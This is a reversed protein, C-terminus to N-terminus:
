KFKIIVRRVEGEDNKLEIDLVEGEERSEEEIIKNTKEDLEEKKTQKVNMPNKGDNVANQGSEVTVEADDKKNRMSVKGSVTFVSTLGSEKVEMLFETGKVSVVTTPTEVEFSGTKKMVKSWLNGLKLYNNKNLKDGEKEASITLISNPFLKVVSSGEVFKVAAYLDEASALVDKNILEKGTKLDIKEKLRQLDVDHKVKLTLAIPSSAFLSATIFM